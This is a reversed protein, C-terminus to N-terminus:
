GAFMMRCIIIAAVAGCADALLGAPVAHRTRKIAVSGFYVALVYFTTETSGMITAGMRAVLSDAGHTQVLESFVGLAGSGSLPRIFVLPLIDAPVGLFALVPALGAAVLAIGGAERFMAIAALIAVLFPIIRLAVQFGEKAGNVFEEYVAVGRLAAFLPFYAFIAPIALISVAKLATLVPQAEAGPDNVFITWGFYLLFGGLLILATKGFVSLPAHTSDTEQHKVEQEKKIEALRAPEPDPLRYIPLHQLTKVGILAAITSCLTAAFATGIIITPEKSGGAALIAVATAPILQVSSTNLALFTCMANSATGPHPNIKELDQMARLGLPTAANSLGLMNAAMNMVISGMAPHDAPVEPFIRRLIPRLAMALHGILGSKEALQMIGLWLAMVGALPLALNMVAMKAADIAGTAVEPLRGTFGGLLVAALVLGLWLYNLM